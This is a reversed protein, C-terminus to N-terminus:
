EKWRSAKTFILITPLRLYNKIRGGECRSFMLFLQQIIDGGLAIMNVDTIVSHTVPTHREEEVEWSTEVDYVDSIITSDHSTTDM